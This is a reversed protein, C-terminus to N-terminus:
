PLAPTRIAELLDSESDFLLDLSANTTSRLYDTPSDIIRGTRNVIDQILRQEFANKTAPGVTPLVRELLEDPAYLKAPDYGAWSFDTAHPTPSLAARDADSLYDRLDTMTGDPHLVFSNEIYFPHGRTQFMRSSLPQTDPGVVFLSNRINVKAQYGAEKARDTMGVKFAELQWNYVIMNAAEVTVDQTDLTVDFMARAWHHAHVSEWFLINTAGYGVIAGCGHLQQPKPHRNERLSQANLVRRLVVGDVGGPRSDIVEINEDVGWMAAWNEVLVHSSNRFYLADADDGEIDGTGLSPLGHAGKLNFDGTYSRGGVYHQNVANKILTPRGITTTPVPVLRLGEPTNPGATNDEPPAPNTAPPPTPTTPPTAIVRGMPPHASIHRETAVSQTPTLATAPIVHAARTPTAWALHIKAGVKNEYYELELDYSQNAHLTLSATRTQGPSDAWHNVLLQGDIWLRVGDDATLHFTYAGTEPATLQGTWRVSFTDPAISPAPSGYGWNFNIAPDIRTISPGTFDLNDYYTATLGQQTGPPQAQAPDASLLRRPELTEPLAFTRDLRYPKGRNNMSPADTSASASRLTTHESIGPAAASARQAPAGPPVAQM